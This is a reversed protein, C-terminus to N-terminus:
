LIVTVYKEDLYGNLWLAYQMAVVADSQSGLSLAYGPQAFAAAPVLLCIILLLALVRKM